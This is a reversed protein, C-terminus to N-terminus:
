GTWATLLTALDAAGTTGDRDLDTPGTGGWNGLLGALDAANVSGDGDIDPSPPPATVVISGTMGGGCHPICYYNVTTGAVSAPVTWTFSTSTSSLPANFLGSATCGSGSTVTHNGGTRVFRVTDGPAVTISSPSFTFGSQTVTHKTASAGAAIALALAASGLRLATLPNRM